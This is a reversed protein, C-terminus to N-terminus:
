TLDIQNITIIKILQTTEWEPWHLLRTGDHVVGQPDIHGLVGLCVPPARDVPVEGLDQHGAEGGLVDHLERSLLPSPHHLDQPGQVLQRSTRHRRQTLPSTKNILICKNSIYCM